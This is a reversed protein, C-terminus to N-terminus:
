QQIDETRCLGSEALVHHGQPPFHEKSSLGLHKLLVDSKDTSYMFCINHSFIVSEDRGSNLVLTQHVDLLFFTIQHTEPAFECVALFLIDSLELQLSATSQHIHTM